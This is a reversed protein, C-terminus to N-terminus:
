QIIKWNLKNGEEMEKMKIKIMKVKVFSHTHIYKKSKYNEPKNDAHLQIRFGEM